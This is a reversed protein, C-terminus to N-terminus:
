RAGGTTPSAPDPVDTPRAAPDTARSPRSAGYADYIRAFLSRDVTAEEVVVSGSLLASAAGLTVGPPVHLGRPLLSSPVGRATLVRHAHRDDSTRLVHGAPPLGRAVDRVAGHVTVLGRSLCTVSDCVLELETLDHSCVLVTRGEGRLDTLITRLQEVGQPDLGTTPEDLVLVPADALLALALGLRQAMGTSLATGRTTLFEDVGVRRLVAPVDAAGVLRARHEVVQRVTLDGPFRSGVLLVEPRRAVRVSGSTAPVLGALVRMLTTKGAGNHGLLGHIVGRRVRFCVDDVITRRLRRVTVHRFRVADDGTVPATDRSPGPANDPRM